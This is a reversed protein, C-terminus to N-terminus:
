NMFKKLLTEPDLAFFDPVFKGVRFAPATMFERCDGFHRDSWYDFSCARFSVVGTKSEKAYIECVTDNTKADRVVIRFDDKYFKSSYQEVKISLNTNPPVDEDMNSYHFNNCINKIGNVTNTAIKFNAAADYILIDWRAAESITKVLFVDQPGNELLKAILSQKIFDGGAMKTRKSSFKVLALIAIRMGQAIDEVQEKSYQKDPMTLFPAHFGLVGGASLKRSPISREPSVGAMFIIACASFCKSGYEIVTSIGHGSILESIKLAEAYSGGVSKLCISSTREDYLDIQGSNRSFVNSLRDYDGASIPGELKFACLKNSTEQIEAAHVDVCTATLLLIALLFYKRM